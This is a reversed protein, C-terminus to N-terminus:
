TGVVIVQFLYCTALQLKLVIPLLTITIYNWFLQCHFIALWNWPCYLLQLCINSSAYFIRLFWLYIWIYCIFPTFHTNIFIFTDRCSTSHSQLPILIWTEKCSVYFSLIDKQQRLYERWQGGCVSFSHFITISQMWQTVIM